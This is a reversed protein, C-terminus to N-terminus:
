NWRGDGREAAARRGGELRGGADRRDLVREPSAAHPASDSLEVPRRDDTTTSCTPRLSVGCSRSSRSHTSWSWSSRTICVPTCSNAPNRSVSGKWGVNSSSSPSCVPIKRPRIVVAASVVSDTMVAMETWRRSVPRCTLSLTTATPATASRKATVPTATRTTPMSANMTSTTTPRVGAAATATTDPRSARNRTATSGAPQERATESPRRAEGQQGAPAEPKYPAEWM